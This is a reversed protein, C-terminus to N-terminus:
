LAARVRLTTLKNERRRQTGFLDAIDFGVVTRVVRFTRSYIAVKDVGTVYGAWCATLSDKVDNQFAATIRGLATGSSAAPQPLYFRGRGTRQPLLTRLSVVLCADASLSNGGAVGAIVQDTVKQALQKGNAINVENTTVQLMSIDPTCHDKYGHGAVAGNWLTANAVIAASHADDLSRISNAWWSYNFQDGAACKGSFRHQYLTM